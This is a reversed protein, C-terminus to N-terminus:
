SKDNQPSRDRKKRSKKVFRSCQGVELDGSFVFGTVDCTGAIRLGECKLFHVCDRELPKSESM